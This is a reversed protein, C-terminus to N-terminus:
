VQRVRVAFRFHDSRVVSRSLSFPGAENFDRATILFAATGKPIRLMEAEFEEAVTAEVTVESETVHIVYRDVLQTFAEPGDVELTPLGGGDFLAATATSADARLFIHGLSCPVDDVAHVVSVEFVEGAPDVDLTRGLQAGATSRRVDLTRALRPLRQWGRKWMGPGAITEYRFKRAAVLTGRGKIRIVVGDNELIDLAKRIVTRSVGFTAALEAESPLMEDPVRRGSDIDERLIEQLQYYFPVISNRDIQRDVPVVGSGSPDSSVGARAGGAIPELAM